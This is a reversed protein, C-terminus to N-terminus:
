GEDLVAKLEKEGARADKRFAGRAGMMAAEIWEPEAPIERWALVAEGQTATWRRGNWWRLGFRRASLGMILFYEGAQAPKENGRHWPM